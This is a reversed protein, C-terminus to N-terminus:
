ASLLNTGEIIMLPHARGKGRVPHTGFASPMTARLTTVNILQGEEFVSMEVARPSNLVAAAM